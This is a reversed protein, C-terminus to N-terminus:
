PIKADDLRKELMTVRALLQHVHDAPNSPVIVVPPIVSPPARLPTIPVVGKHHIPTPFVHPTHQKPHSVQSM